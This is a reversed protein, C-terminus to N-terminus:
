YQPFEFQTYRYYTATNPHHQFIESKLVARSAALCHNGIVHFVKPVQLKKFLTSMVELDALTKEETVNGDIIDGLHVVCTLEDRMSNFDEVALALKPSSDRYGCRKGRSNIKDEKDGYQVDSILGLRVPMSSAACVLQYSRGIVRLRRSGLGSQGRSHSDTVIGRSIADTTLRTPSATNANFRPTVLSTTVGSSIEDRSQALFMNSLFSSHSVNSFYSWLPKFRVEVQHARQATTSPHRSCSAHSSRYM